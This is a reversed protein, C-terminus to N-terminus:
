DQQLYQDLQVFVQEHTPVDMLSQASCEILQAMKLINLIHLGGTNQYLTQLVYIRRGDAGVYELNPDDNHLGHDAIGSRSRAPLLPM